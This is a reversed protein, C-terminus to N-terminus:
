HALRRLEIAGAGPRSSSHVAVFPSKAVACLCRAWQDGSSVLARASVALNKLHGVAVPSAGVIKGDHLHHIAPLTGFAAFISHRRGNVGGVPGSNAHTGSLRYHEKHSGAPPRRGTSSASVMTKRLCPLITMMPHM